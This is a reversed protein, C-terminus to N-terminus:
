HGRPSPLLADAAILADGHTMDGGWYLTVLPNM